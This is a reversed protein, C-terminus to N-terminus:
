LQEEAPLRVVRHRPIGGVPFNLPLLFAWELLVWQLKQHVSHAADSVQLPNGHLVEFKVLAAPVAEFLYLCGNRLAPSVLRVTGDNLCLYGGGM